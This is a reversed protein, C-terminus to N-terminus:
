TCERQPGRRLSCVALVTGTREECAVNLPSSTWLAIAIVRVRRLRDCLDMDVKAARTITAWEGVVVGACVIGDGQGAYRREGPGHLM